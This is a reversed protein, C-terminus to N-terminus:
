NRGVASREKAEERTVLLFEVSKACEHNRFKGFRENFSRIAKVSLLVHRM